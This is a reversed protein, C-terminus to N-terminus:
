VYVRKAGPSLPDRELEGVRERGSGEVVVVVVVVVVLERRGDLGVGGVRERGSGEVICDGDLDCDM